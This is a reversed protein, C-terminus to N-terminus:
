RGWLSWRDGGGWGTKAGSFAPSRRTGLDPTGGEADLHDRGRQGGLDEVPLAPNFSWGTFSNGSPDQCLM